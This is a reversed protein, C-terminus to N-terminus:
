DMIRQFFNNEKIAKLLKETSEKINHGDAFAILEKARPTSKDDYRIYAFSSYNKSKNNINGISVYQIFTDFKESLDKVIKLNAFKEKLDKPILKDEVYRVGSETYKSNKHAPFCLNENFKPTGKTFYLGQMNIQNQYNIKSIKM